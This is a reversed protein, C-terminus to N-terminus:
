SSQTGVNQRMAQSADAISKGDTDINKCQNPCTVGNHSSWCVDEHMVMCYYITSIGFLRKVHAATGVVPAQIPLRASSRDTHPPASALCASMSRNKVRFLSILVSFMVLIVGSWLYVQLRQRAPHTQYPTVLTLMLFSSALLGDSPSTLM